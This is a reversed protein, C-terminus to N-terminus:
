PPPAPHRPVLFLSVRKFPGSEQLLSGTKEDNEWGRPWSQPAPSFGRTCRARWHGVGAGTGAKEPSGPLSRLAGRWPHSTFAAWCRVAAGPRGAGEAGRGPCRGGARPTGPPGRSRCRGQCSSRALDTIGGNPGSGPARRRGARPGPRANPCSTAGGRAEGAGGM